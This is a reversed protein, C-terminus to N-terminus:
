TIHQSRQIIKQHSSGLSAIHWIVVSRRHCQHFVNQSVTQSVTYHETIGSQTHLITASPMCYSLDSLLPGQSSLTSLPSIQPQHLQQPSLLQSIYVTPSIFIHRPFRGRRSHKNREPAQGQTSSSNRLTFIYFSISDSRPVHGRRTHKECQHRVMVRLIFFVVPIRQECVKSRAVLIM